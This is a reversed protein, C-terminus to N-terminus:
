KRMPGVTRDDDGGARELAFLLGHELGELANARRHGVRQEDDRRALGLPEVVDLPQGAAGAPVDRAAALQADIGLRAVVDDDEVRDALERLQELDRGHHEDAAAEDVGSAVIDQFRRHEPLWDHKTRVHLVEGLDRPREEVVAGGDLHAGTALELAVSSSSSPSGTRRALRPAAARASTSALRPARPLLRAASASSSGGSM